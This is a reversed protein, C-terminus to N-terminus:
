QVGERGTRQRKALGQRHDALQQAVAVDLRRRAVGMQGLGRDMLRRFPNGLANRPINLLPAPRFLCQQSCGRAPILGRRAGRGEIGTCEVVGM